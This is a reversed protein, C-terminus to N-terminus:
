RLSKCNQLLLKGGRSINKTLELAEIMSKETLPTYHDFFDWYAGPVYKINPQLIMIKGNPKLVRLCENLIKVIDEKDRIHEFFNSIFVADIESEGLFNLNQAENNHVEVFERAHKKVDPNLDVAIRRGSNSNKQPRAINNIFDCYGAAIDLIDDSSKVYKNFFSECLARWMSNRQKWTKKEFRNQYLEDLKVTLNKM